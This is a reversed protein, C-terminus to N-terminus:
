NRKTLLTVEKEVIDDNSDIKAVIDFYQLMEIISEYLPDFLETLFMDFLPDTNVVESDNENMVINRCIIKEWPSITTNWKVISM